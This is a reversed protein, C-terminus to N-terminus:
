LTLGVGASVTNNSSLAYDVNLQIIALTISVGALARVSNSADQDFSVTSTGADTQFTYGVDVGFQEYQVGGYFTIPAV